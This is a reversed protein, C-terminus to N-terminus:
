LKMRQSIARDILRKVTGDIRSFEFRISFTIPGIESFMKGFVEDAYSSSVLPVDSFDITVRGQTMKVLNMLKNRTKEGSARSGFGESEDRLIFKVNGKEDEGFSLEIYDTPTHSKGNFKLADELALSEEYRITAAVLTGNFPIASHRIRLGSKPTYFLSACGSQIEFNGGTLEAVRYTGFLGNGQGHWSSPTVGERIARDLAETDDKLEPHGSRLTSPIGVGGDCVVFEIAKRNKSFSTM